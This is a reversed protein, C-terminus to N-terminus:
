EGPWRLQDALRKCVSWHLHNSRAKEVVIAVSGLGRRCRQDILFGDTGPTGRAVDFDWARTCRERVEDVLIRCHESELAPAAPFEDQPESFLESGRHFRCAALLEGSDPAQQWRQPLDGVRDLADDCRDPSVRGDLLATCQTGAADIVAECEARVVKAEAAAAPEDWTAADVLAELTSAMSEFVPPAAEGYDSIRVVQNALEMRLRVTAQDTSDSDYRPALRLVGSRFLQGMVRRLVEPEVRGLREGQVGRLEGGSLWLRGDSRVVLEFVPCDGYCPGRSLSVESWKPMPSSSSRENTADPSPDLPAAAEVSESDPPDSGCSSGTTVVLALAAATTCRMTAAGISM